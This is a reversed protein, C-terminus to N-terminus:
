LDRVVRGRHGRWPAGAPDAGETARSPDPTFRHVRRNPSHDPESEDRDRRREDDGHGRPAVVIAPAVAAALLAPSVVVAAIVVAPIVPVGVLVAVEIAVGIVPVGVLMARRLVPLLLPAIMALALVAGPLALPGPTALELAM